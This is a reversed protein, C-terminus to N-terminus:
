SFSDFNICAFSTRSETSSFWDQRSQPRYFYSQIEIPISPLYTHLIYNFNEYTYDPKLRKRKRGSTPNTASASSSSLSMPLIIIIIVRKFNVICNLYLYKKGEFLVKSM